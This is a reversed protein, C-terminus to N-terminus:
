PSPSVTTRPGGGVIHHSGIQQLPSVDSDKEDPGGAGSTAVEMAVATDNAAM